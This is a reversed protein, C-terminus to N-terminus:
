NSLLLLIKVTRRVRVATHEMKETFANNEKKKKVSSVRLISWKQETWKMKFCSMLAIQLFNTEPFSFSYDLVWTVLWSHFNLGASYVRKVYMILWKVLEMACLGEQSALLYEALWSIGQGKTSGWPENGHDRDQALHMWDVGEWGVKRRDM